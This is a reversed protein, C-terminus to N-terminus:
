KLGDILNDWSSKFYNSDLQNIFLKSSEILSTSNKLCFDVKDNLDDYNDLVVQGTKALLEGMGGNNRGIVPTEALISEHAIRNWGEIMTSMCLVVDCCSLFLPFENKNFFYTKVKRDPYETKGTVILEYKDLDINELVKRKGKGPYNTGLYLIPKSFSLHYKKKFNLKKGESFKYKGIDFANYILKINNIGRDRLFSEWFESVVVVTHMKKLNYILNKYFFKMVINRNFFDQNIHHIISINIKQSSYKALGLLYPDVVCIDGEIKSVQDQILYNFLGVNKIFKENLSVHYKKKLSEIAMLEYLRGGRLIEETSSSNYGRLMSPSKTLWDIHTRSKM